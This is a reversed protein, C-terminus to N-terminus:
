RRWLGRIGEWGIAVVTVSLGVLGAPYDFGKWKLILTLLLLIVLFGVAPIAFDWVRMGTRPHLFGGMVKELVFFNFIVLAAGITLSLGARRGFFGFAASAAIAALMISNRKVRRLVGRDESM